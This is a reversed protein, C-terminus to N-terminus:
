MGAETSNAQIIDLANQVGVPIPIPPPRPEYVEIVEEESSDDVLTIVAPQAEQPPSQAQLAEAFLRRLSPSLIERIQTIM